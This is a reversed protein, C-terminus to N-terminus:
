APRTFVAIHLSAGAIDDDPAMAELRALGAAYQEDTLIGLFSDASRMKRVWDLTDAAKRSSQPLDEVTEYVFGEAGFLARLDALKTFRDFAAAGGPFIACWGPLPGVDSYTARLFVKGGPALIRRLDAVCAPQDTIHHFVTSIWAADVVGDRLPIAEGRGEVTRVGPPLGIRRAEHLMPLSPEVCIVETASWEPWVRAFIGTGAGLDLVRLRGDSRRPLHPTVADRCLDSQAFPSRGEAYRSAVRDYDVLGM